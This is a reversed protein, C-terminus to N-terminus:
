MCVCMYVYMYVLMCFVLLFCLQLSTIKFFLDTCTPLYFAHSLIKTMKPRYFLTTGIPAYAIRPPKLLLFSTIYFMHHTPLYAKSCAPTQRIARRTTSASDLDALCATNWVPSSEIKADSKARNFRPM